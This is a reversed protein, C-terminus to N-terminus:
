HQGFLWVLKDQPRSVAEIVQSTLLEASITSVTGNDYKVLGVNQGGTVNTRSTGGIAYSSNFLTPVYIPIEGIDDSTYAGNIVHYALITSVGDVTENALSQSEQTDPPTANFAANTPALITIDSASNLTAALGPVINIARLLTSLDSQSELLSVLANQAAALGVWTLLLTWM